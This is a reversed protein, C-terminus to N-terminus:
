LHTCGQAFMSRRGTAEIPHGPISSQEKKQCYVASARHSLPLWKKLGFFYKEGPTGLRRVRLGISSSPPSLTTLVPKRVVRHLNNTTPPMPSAPLHPTPRRRSLTSPLNPDILHLNKLQRSSDVPQSPDQPPAASPSVTPPPLAAPPLPTSRKRKPVASAQQPRSTAM